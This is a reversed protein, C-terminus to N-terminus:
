GLIDKFLNQVEDKTQQFAVKLHPRPAMKATGYELYHSYDLPSGVYGVAESGEGKVLYKYSTRLHGLRSAPAEGAKSAQYVTDETAPVPYIEGTRPGVLVKSILERHVRMSAKLMIKEYEKEMEKTLKSLDNTYTLNIGNSM